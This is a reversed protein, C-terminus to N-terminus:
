ANDIEMLGIIEEVENRNIEWGCWACQGDLVAMAYNEKRCEPCKVLGISVEGNREKKGVYGIWKDGLYLDNHDYTNPKNKITYKIKAM